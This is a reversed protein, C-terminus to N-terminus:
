YGVDLITTPTFQHQVDLDFMESYPLKYMTPNPGYIFPPAISTTASGGATGTPNSLSTNSFATNAPSVGPNTSQDTIQTDTSNLGYFLGFGGRISTDHNAWPDWAFGFRPAFANNNPVVSDGYPSNHGAQIYGPLTTRDVATVFYGANGL